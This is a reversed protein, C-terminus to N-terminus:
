VAVPQPLRGSVASLVSWVRMAHRDANDRHREAIQAVESEGLSTAYSRIAEYIATQFRTITYAKMLDTVAKEYEDHAAHLIDLTKAFIQNLLGKGGTPEEGRARLLAELAEEHTYAEGELSEFLATLEADTIEKRFDKFVTRLSKEVAWADDLYKVLREQASQM